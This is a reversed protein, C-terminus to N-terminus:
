CWAWQQNRILVTHFYRRPLSAGLMWIQCWPFGRFSAFNQRAGKCAFVGVWGHALFYRSGSCIQDTSVLHSVRYTGPGSRYFRHLLHLCTRHRACLLLYSLWRQVLHFPRLVSYSRLTMTTKMRLLMFIYHSSLRCFM